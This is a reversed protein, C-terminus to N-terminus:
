VLNRKQWSKAFASSPHIPSHSRRILSNRTIQTTELATPLMGERLPLDALTPQLQQRCDGRTWPRALFVLLRCRCCRVAEANSKEALQQLEFKAERAAALQRDFSHCVTSFVGEQTRSVLNSAHSLLRPVVPLVVLGGISVSKGWVEQLLRSISSNYIDCQQSLEKFCVAYVRQQAEFARLSDRAVAEFQKKKSAFELQSDVWKSLYAADHAHRHYKGHDHPLKAEKM